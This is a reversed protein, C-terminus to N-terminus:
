KITLVLPMSCVEIGYGENFANPIEKKLINLAGNLDANILRGTSTRFLGRKIRNGQYTEHKCISENDLFSCKSTYSEERQIVKIGELESKYTIMDIFQNYPIQVFKQNNVKGINIDQKWEKNHGIVIVSVNNSVLQNVLMRSSKHLYDKIKNNRKNTLQKIKLSNVNKNKCTDQRSKLISLQKNYYQNISKLPRGNVIMPKTNNGGITALNNLGLDIGVFNNSQKKPKIEQNYIVEIVFYNNKPVVRVQNINKHIIPIKGECGSLKLYGQKLEKVSIAQNTFTLLNRGNKNM